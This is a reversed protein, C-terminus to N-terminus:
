GISNREGINPTSAPTDLDENSDLSIDCHSVGPPPFPFLSNKKTGKM